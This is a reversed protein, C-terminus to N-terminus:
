RITRFLKGKAVELLQEDGWYKFYIRKGGLRILAGESCFLGLIGGFNNVTKM